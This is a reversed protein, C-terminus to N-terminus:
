LIKGAKAIILIVLIMGFFAFHALNRGGVRAIRRKSVVVGDVVLVILLIVTTAISIGKTSEFPSFLLQFKSAEKNAPPLTSITGAGVGSTPVPSVVAPFATPAPSASPSAAAQVVIPTPTATAVPKAQAAPVQSATDLLPTGFLQVIITTDVGSLDGEVVAVGIETYKPSLLNERHSPSAMWADVASQPNTFDRALNEGAYRYKYGVDTFFKWPETGDPAIHAWYNYQLMHNGKALAAQALLPSYQLSAVGNEARKQNTLSIVESTSINAAYGLIKVGVIPVTSLFVQYTILLSAFILLSSSHLLKAKHNNSYRPYFYHALASFFNM